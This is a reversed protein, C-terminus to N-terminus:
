VQLLESIVQARLAAWRIQLEAVIRLLLLDRLVLGQGRGVTLLLDFGLLLCHLLQLRIELLENLSQLLVVGFRGLLLVLINFRELTSAQAKELCDVSMGLCPLPLELPIRQAYPPTWKPPGVSDDQETAREISHRVSRSRAKVAREAGLNTRDGCTATAM